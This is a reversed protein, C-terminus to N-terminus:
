EILLGVDPADISEGTNVYMQIATADELTVRTDHNVDGAYKEIDSFQIENALANQIYQADLISVEGDGDIDGYISYPVSIGVERAWQLEIEEFYESERNVYLLNGNKIYLKKAYEETIDSIYRKLTTYNSANISSKDFQVDSIEKDSIYALLEEKFGILDSKFKAEQARKIPNTTKFTLIIISALIIVVLITIVLVILSVGRYKKNM